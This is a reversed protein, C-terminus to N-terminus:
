FVNFVFKLITGVVTRVIVGIFIDFGLFAYTPIQNVIAIATPSMGAFLPIFFSFVISLISSGLIIAIAGGIVSIMMTVIGLVRKETTIPQDDDPYLLPEDYSM